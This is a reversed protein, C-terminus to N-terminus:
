FFFIYRIKIIWSLELKKKMLNNIRPKGEGRNISLSRSKCYIYIYTHIHIYHFVSLFVIYFSKLRDSKSSFSDPGSSYILGHFKNNSRKKKNMWPFVKAAPPIICGVFGSLWLEVFTRPSSKWSGWQPEM